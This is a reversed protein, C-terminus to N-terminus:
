KVPQGTPPTYEVGMSKLYDKIPGLGMEARRKDLNAEDEVKYLVWQKTDSDMQVQSGYLQPLGQNMRVRDEMMALHNKSAEGKAAAERLLPLYKEMVEKPAHQIVLFVASSAHMGVMSKGPWGYTEILPMIQKLNEQDIQEMKQGLEKVEASEMGHQERAAVFERRIQQDKEYISELQAKLPQNYKAEIAAVSRKLDDVLKPWRKDAHLSSLDTDKQWHAVALYGKAIAQELHAFAKNKNGALAWSCAANYHDSASGKGAQLM